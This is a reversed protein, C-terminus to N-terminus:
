FCDFKSETCSDHMSHIRLRQRLQRSWGFAAAAGFLPFPGPAPASAIAYSVTATRVPTVDLQFSPNALSQAIGSVENLNTNVSYAFVPGENASWGSGLQDFVEKSFDIALLDDGWWPMRGGLSPLEFDSFNSNYSTSTVTVDYPTGRVNVVVATVPAACLLPPLLALLALSIPKPM